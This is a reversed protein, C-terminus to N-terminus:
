INLSRVYLLSIYLDFTQQREIKHNQEISATLERRRMNIKKKEYKQM